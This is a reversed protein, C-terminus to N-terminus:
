ETQRTPLPRNFSLHPNSELIYPLRHATCIIFSSMQLKKEHLNHPQQRPSDPQFELELRVRRPLLWVVQMFCVLQWTYLQYIRIIPVSSAQFM